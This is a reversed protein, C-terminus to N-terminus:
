LHLRRFDRKTELKSFEIESTQRTPLFDSNLTVMIKTKVVEYNVLWIPSTTSPCIIELPIEVEAITQIRMIQWSHFPLIDVFHVLLIM